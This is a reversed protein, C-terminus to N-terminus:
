VMAMVDYGYIHPIVDCDAIKVTLASYKGSRVLEERFVSSKNSTHNKLGINLM